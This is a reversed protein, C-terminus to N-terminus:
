TDIFNRSSAELFSLVCCHILDSSKYPIGGSYRIEVVAIGRLMGLYLPFFLKFDEMAGEYHGREEITSSSEKSFSFNETNTFNKPSAELFPLFM